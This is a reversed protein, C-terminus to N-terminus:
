KDDNRSVSAPEAATARAQAEARDTAKHRRNLLGSVEAQALLARLAASHAQGKMAEEFVWELKDMVTDRDLAYSLARQRRLASIKQLIEANRLLRHAESAAGKEAYGAMIAARTGSPETLFHRCFAEQRPTLCNGGPEGAQARDTAEMLSDLTPQTGPGFLGEIARRRKAAEKQAAGKRAEHEDRQEACHVLRKLDLANPMRSHGIREWKTGPEADLRRHYYAELDIGDPGVDYLEVSKFEWGKIREAYDSENFHGLDSEDAGLEESSLDGEAVKLDADSIDNDMVDREKDTIKPMELPNPM